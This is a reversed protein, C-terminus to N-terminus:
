TRRLHGSDSGELALEQKGAELDLLARKRELGGGYGRLKGNAEIVRHCPVIISVYNAGNARGVARAAGPKGLALALEGYSRTEGYPIQLLAQWDLMEFATGKLDLPLDFDRRKGSFYEEIQRQLLKLHKHEGSSPAVGYRKELRTMIREKGGRDAWELLCIGRETTGGLMPGLPSEFECYTIRETAM